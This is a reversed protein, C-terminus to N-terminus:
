HQVRDSSYLNYISGLYYIFAGTRVFGCECVSLCVSVFNEASRFKSTERRKAARDSENELGTGSFLQHCKIVNNIRFADEFRSEGSAAGYNKGRGHSQATVYLLNFVPNKKRRTKGPHIKSVSFSHRVLNSPSFHPCTVILDSPQATAGQGSNQWWFKRTRSIDSFIRRHSFLSHACVPSRM